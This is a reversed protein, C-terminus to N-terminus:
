QSMQRRGNRPYLAWYLNRDQLRPSVRNHRPIRGCTMVVVLNYFVRFLRPPALRRAEKIQPWPGPPTHSVSVTQLRSHRRGYVFYIIFGLAMWVILRAWTDLPLGAMLFLLYLVSPCVLWFVPTRFPRQIEPDTFRLVMVGICVIAFALLTGISVLEGLLGIPFLGAMMMAVFGTLITALWPRRFRPHCQSFDAPAPRGEVDCLIRPQGLMMVLIVSSLGAIAGM